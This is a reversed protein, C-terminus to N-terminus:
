ICKRYDCFIERGRRGNDIKKHFLIAIFTDICPTQFSHFTLVPRSMKSKVDLSTAAIILYGRYISLGFADTAQCLHTEFVSFRKGFSITLQGHEEATGAAHEKLKFRYSEVPWLSYKSSSSM